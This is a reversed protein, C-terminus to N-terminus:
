ETSEEKEGKKTKTFINKNVNLTILLSKVLDNQIINNLFILNTKEGWSCIVNHLYNLPFHKLCPDGILCALYECVCVVCM